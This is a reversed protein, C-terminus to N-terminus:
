LTVNSKLILRDFYIRQKLIDCLAVLVTDVDLFKDKELEYSLYFVLIDAIDKFDDLKCFKNTQKCSKYIKAVEEYKTKALELAKIVCATKKPEWNYCNTECNKSYYYIKKNDFCSYYKICNKTIHLDFWKDKKCLTSNNFLKNLTDLASNDLVNGSENCDLLSKVIVLSSLLNEYKIGNDNCAIKQILDSM